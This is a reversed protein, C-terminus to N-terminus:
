KFYRCNVCGERELVLKASKGLLMAGIALDGVVIIVIM